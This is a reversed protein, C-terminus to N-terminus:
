KVIVRFPYPQTYNATIVLVQCAIEGVATAQFFSKTVLGNVEPGSFTIGAGGSWVPLTAIVEGSPLLDTWDLSFDTKEGLLMEVYPGRTDRRWRKILESM